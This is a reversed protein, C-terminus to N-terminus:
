YAGCIGDCPYVWFTGCGSNQERCLVSKCDPDPNTVWNCWDSEQSGWPADPAFTVLVDIDSAPGFDDRLVSGFLELEVIQWRACIERIQELVPSIGTRQLLEAPVDRRESVATAQWSPSSAGPFGGPDSLHKAM